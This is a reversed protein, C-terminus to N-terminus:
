RTQLKENSAAFFLVKGLSRRLLIVFFSWASAPAASLRGGCGVDVYMVGDAITRV